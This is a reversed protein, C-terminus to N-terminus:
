QQNPAQCSLMKNGLMGKIINIPAAPTEHLYKAEKEATEIAKAIKFAKEFNLNPKALLKCQLHQDRYGCVLHDHLMDKLTEGFECHKSLKHLHAVFESIKEGPKQTWTCFNFQQM